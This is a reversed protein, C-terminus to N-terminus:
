WRQDSRFGRNRLCNAEYGQRSGNPGGLNTLCQRPLAANDAYRQDLCSETFVSQTRGNGLEIRRFCNGPLPDARRTNRSQPVTRRHNDRDGFRRNHEVEVVQPTNNQNIALGIAGAALLGIVAKNLGDNNAAQTPAATALLLSLATVGATLTKRM